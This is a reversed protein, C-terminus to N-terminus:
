DLDISEVGRADEVLDFQPALRQYHDFVSTFARAEALGPRGWVAFGCLTPSHCWFLGNQIPVWRRVPDSFLEELTACQKMEDSVVRLRRAVNSQRLSQTTWSTPRATTAM